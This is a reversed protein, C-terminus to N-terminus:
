HSPSDTSQCVVCSRSLRAVMSNFLKGNWEQQWERAKKGNRFKMLVMYRNARATKIMRFHSVDNRTGEGVFGLFDSPALYSPVALICLTTCEHDSPLPIPTGVRERPLNGSYWPNSPKSLPSDGYLGPTEAADRYLHVIGWTGDQPKQDLSEYHGKMQLGSIASGIGKSVHSDGGEQKEPESKDKVSSMDASQLYVYDLRQDDPSSPVFPSSIPHFDNSPANSALFTQFGPSQCPQAAKADVPKRFYRPTLHKIFPSLTHNVETSLKASSQTRYPHVDRSPFSELVIHFFYEPMVNMDDHHGFHFYCLFSHQM